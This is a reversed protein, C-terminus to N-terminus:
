ISTSWAKNSNHLQLNEAINGNNQLLLIYRNGTINNTM